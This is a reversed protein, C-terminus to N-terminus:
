FDEEAADEDDQKMGLVTVYRWSGGDVRLHTETVYCESYRKAISKLIEPAIKFSITEGKYNVKSKEVYSGSVGEGTVQIQNPSLEVEVPNDAAYEKSLVSARDTISELEKPVVIREGQIEFFESLDTFSGLSKRCSLIYGLPNQFHIWNEDEACKTTSLAAIHILSDGRVLISESVHTKVRYRCLQTLDCAEVFEPHIHICSLNYQESDKSACPHVIAVADCFDESMEFWKEPLPVEDLPLEVESNMTLKVTRGKGKIIVKKDKQDVSIEEDPMKRLIELLSSAQVSGQLLDGFGTPARCCREDNFTTVQNSTFVYSKQQEFMQKGKGLGPTVAELTRLLDERNAKM